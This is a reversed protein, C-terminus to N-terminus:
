SIEPSWHDNASKKTMAYMSQVPMHIRYEGLYIISPSKSVLLAGLVHLDRCGSMLKNILMEAYLNALGSYIGM